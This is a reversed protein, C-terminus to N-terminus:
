VASKIGVLNQVVIFVVLYEERITWFCTIRIWIYFYNPTLIPILIVQHSNSSIRTSISNESMKLTEYNAAYPEIKQATGKRNTHLIDGPGSFPNAAFECPLRTQDRARFLKFTFTLPWLDVDGCVFFPTKPPYGWQSHTTVRESWIVDNLLLSSWETSAPSHHSHVARASPNAIPPIGTDSFYRPILFSPIIYRPSALCRPIGDPPVSKWCAKM